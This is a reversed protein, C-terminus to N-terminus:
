FPNVSKIGPVKGFGEAETYITDIGNELMTAALM